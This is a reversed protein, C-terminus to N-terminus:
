KELGDMRFKLDAYEEVLQKLDFLSFQGEDHPLEYMADGAAPVIMLPEADLMNANFHENHKLAAQVKELATQM